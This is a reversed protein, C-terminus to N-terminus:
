WIPPKGPPELCESAATVLADRAFDSPTQRNVRAAQEVRERESPSLRVHFPSGPAEARAPRGGRRPEFVAIQPDNASM